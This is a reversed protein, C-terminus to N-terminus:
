GGLVADIDDISLAGPMMEGNIFFTPTSQVGFENAGRNKVWNVGDLIEQNTLCSRFDEQSTGAQKLLNQLASAPDAVFAWSRQNEFLLDIIPFFRDEPACRALMVASTALLDLPFERLIFLAKGTDIYKEKMAGYTQAHFTQCHSCTMSAYEIIVNPANPDGLTKEGLPGAVMLPDESRDVTTAATGAGTLSVQGSNGTFFYIGAAAVVVVVAVIGILQAPKLAM